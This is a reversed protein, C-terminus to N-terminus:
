RSISPKSASVLAEATARSRSPRLQFLVAHQQLAVEGMHFEQEGGFQEDDAAADGLTGVLVQRVHLQARRDDRGFELVVGPDDAGGDLDGQLVFQGFLAWRPTFGISSDSRTTRFAPFSGSHYSLKKHLPSTSGTTAAAERRQWWRLRHHYGPVGDGPCDPCKRRRRCRGSTRARATGARPRQRMAFCPFRRNSTRSRNSPRTSAPSGCTPSRTSVSCRSWSRWGSKTPRSKPPAPAGSRGGRSGAGAPRSRRRHGPPGPLGQPRRQHGQQPQVARRGRLAQHRDPEHNGRHHVPPRM